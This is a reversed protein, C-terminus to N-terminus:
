AEVEDYRRIGDQSEKTRRRAEEEAEELSPFLEKAYYISGSGVGTEVCMYREERKESRPGMNSRDVEWLQRDDDRGYTPGEIMLQIQGITFPERSVLTRVFQEGSQMEGKGYCKPCTILDGIGVVPVKGAGGCISCTEIEREIRDWVRWVQQGIDYKTTLEM